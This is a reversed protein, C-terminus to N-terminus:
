TSFSKCNEYDSASSKLGKKLIIRGTYPEIVKKLSIEVLM